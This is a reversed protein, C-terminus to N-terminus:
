IVGPPPPDWKSMFKTRIGDVAAKLEAEIDEDPPFPPDYPWFGRTIADNVRADVAKQIELIRPMPSSNSLAEFLQKYLANINNAYERALLARAVVDERQVILRVVFWVALAVIGFYFWGSPMATKLVEIANQGSPVNGQFAAIVPTGLGMGALAASADGIYANVASLRVFWQQKVKKGCIMWPLLEDALKRLIAHDGPLLPSTM